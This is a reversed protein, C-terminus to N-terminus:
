GTASLKGDNVPRNNNARKVVLRTVLATLALLLPVGVGVGVGVGLKWKDYTEKRTMTAQTSLYQEVWSSQVVFQQSTDWPGEPIDGDSAFTITIVNTVGQTVSHWAEEKSVNPYQATPFSDLIKGPELVFETKTTNTEWSFGGPMKWQVRVRSDDRHQTKKWAINYSKGSLLLAPNIGGHSPPKLPYADPPYTCSEGNHSPPCWLFSQLCLEESNCKHEKSIDWALASHTTLAAAIPILSLKM